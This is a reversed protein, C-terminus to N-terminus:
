KDSKAAEIATQILWIAIPILPMGGGCQQNPGVTTCKEAGLALADAADPAEGSHRAGPEPPVPLPFRNPDRGQRGCVIIDRAGSRRDCDLGLSDRLSEQQRALAQDATAPAAAFAPAAALAAAM